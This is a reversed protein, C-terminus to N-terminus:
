NIRAFAFTTNNKEEYDPPYSKEKVIGQDGKWKEVGNEIKSKKPANGELTHITGDEDISKVFAIHDYWIGDNNRDLMIIDGPKVESKNSKFKSFDIDM